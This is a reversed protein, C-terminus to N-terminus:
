EVPARTGRIIPKGVPTCYDEAVTVSEIVVKTNAPAVFESEGHFDKAGWDYTYGLATWPYSQRPDDKYSSQWNSCMWKLHDGSVKVFVGSLQDTLADSWPCPASTNVPGATLNVQCEQDNIEPDPCPRFFTHPDIWMQVFADYSADPRLGLRQALRVRLAEGHLDTGHCFQRLFPVATLWTDKPLTYDYPPKQGQYYKAMTWTSMLVKKGSEDWVLGPTFTLIPVLAKWVHDPQPYKAARVAQVYLKWLDGNDTAATAAAGRHASACGAALLLLATFLALALAFRSTASRRPNELM